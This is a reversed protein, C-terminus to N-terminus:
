LLQNLLYWFRMSAWVISTLFELWGSTNKGIKQSAIHVINIENADCIPWGILLVHVYLFVALCLENFLIWSAKGCLFKCQITPYNKVNQGIAVLSM